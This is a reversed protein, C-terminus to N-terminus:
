GSDQCANGARAAGQGLWHEVFDRLAPDAADQSRLRRAWALATIGDAAPHPVLLVAQGAAALEVDFPGAVEARLTELARPPRAGEYTVVVNGLELAHLLEDDSIEGGDRRLLAPRHTGSTPPRSSPAGDSRGHAACRGPVRQGPGAAAVVEADDRAAFFRVLALIGAGAVVGVLAVALARRM